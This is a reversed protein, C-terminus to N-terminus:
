RPRTLYCKGFFDFLDITSSSCILGHGQQIRILALSPVKSKNSRPHQTRTSPEYVHTFVFVQSAAVRRIYRACIPLPDRSKM